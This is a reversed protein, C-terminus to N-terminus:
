RTLAQLSEQLEAMTIPAPVYPLWPLEVQELLSRRVGLGFSLCCRTRM